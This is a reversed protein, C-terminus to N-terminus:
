VKFEASDDAWERQLRDLEDSLREVEEAAADREAEVAAAVQRLDATEDAMADALGQGAGRTLM